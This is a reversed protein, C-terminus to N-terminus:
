SFNESWPEYRREAVMMNEHDEDGYGDNKETHPGLEEEVKQSSVSGVASSRAPQEDDDGRIGSM